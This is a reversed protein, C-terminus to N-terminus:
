THKRGKYGACSERGALYFPLSIKVPLKHGGEIRDILIKAAMQGMEQTPIHITTLMPSLYQATDIDDISVLSIDQPIRVGEEQFARMAGIATIDNSCFVASIDAKRELLLKAGRYGDESSLKVDAVWAPRQPIRGAALADCYGLYREENATEGIYGIRSHGLSILHETAARGTQRGDCIVQDYKADLSNLGVYVVSNFYQKLFKLTQKDCRGLVAIGNVHNDMVLHYTSPNNIDFASFSYKLLYNHRFAEQEISRALSNFFLDTMMDPTRAFLCALSHSAAEGPQAAGLKLSQAMSNPTYGTRRVIEWIRDQVEKSAAKSNNNIVRSVTSVSVGAEKAIEKLTM